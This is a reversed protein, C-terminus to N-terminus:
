PKVEHPGRLSLAGLAQSLDGGPVTGAENAHVVRRAAAVWRPRTMAKPPLRTRAFQVVVGARATDGSRLYLEATTLLHEDLEPPPVRAVASALLGAAFAPAGLEAADAAAQRLLELARPGGLRDTLELWAAVAEAREEADASRLAALFIRMRLRERPSGAVLAPGELERVAALRHGLFARARAHRVLLEERLPAPLGSPDFVLAESKEGLCSGSLECLRATAMRGAPGLGAAKRWSEAASEPDSRKLALDGLRLWAFQKEVATSQEGFLKEAEALRGGAFACEARALGGEGPCAEEFGLAKVEGAIVPPGDEADRWPLGPLTRLELVSRGAQTVAVADIRRTSCRLAIARERTEVEGCIASAARAVAAAVARPDRASVIVTAELARIEVPGIAGAAGVPIREVMVAAGIAREASATTSLLAAALVAAHTM